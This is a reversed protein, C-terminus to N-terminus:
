QINDKRTNIEITKLLDIIKNQNKLILAYLIKDDIEGKFQGESLKTEDFTILKIIEDLENM